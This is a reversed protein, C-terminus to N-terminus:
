NFERHEFNYIKNAQCKAIFLEPLLAVKITNNM